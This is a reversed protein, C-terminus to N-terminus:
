LSFQWCFTLGMQGRLLRVGNTSFIELMLIAPDEDDNNTYSIHLLMRIVSALSANNRRIFPLAICIVNM